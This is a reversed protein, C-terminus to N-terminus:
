LRIKDDEDYLEKLEKPDEGYWNEGPQGEQFLMWFVYFPILQYWGSNGLDHCRKASQAWLFWLLPVLLVFIYLIDLGGPEHRHSLANMMGYIVLYVAFYILFSIGFEARRIRGNFSFPREFMTRRSPSTPSDRLELVDLINNEM